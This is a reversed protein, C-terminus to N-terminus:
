WIYARLEPKLYLNHGSVVNYLEYWSDINMVVGNVREKALSHGSTDRMKQMYSVSTKASWLYAYGEFFKKKQKSLEDGYYGEQALKNMYADHSILVGGLDAVNENLTKEGDAYVGPLNEPDIELLSYNDALKQLRTNFEQKDADNAWWENLGGDKDYKSGANDFGHTMEHGIVAFMAYNVADSYEEDYLPPLMFAPYIAVTNCSPEYFANVTSLGCDDALMMIELLLNNAQKGCLYTSFNLSNASLRLYDEVLSNGTPHVMFEEFWQDPYGVNFRIADLKELAKQRTGESMWDAKNLRARFAERMEECHELMESKLSSTVYKQAFEYSQTYLMKKNVIETARKSASLKTNNQVNFSDIREQSAYVLENAISTAAAALIDSADLAELKEIDKTLDSSIYIDEQAVGLEDAVIDLYSYGTSRVSRVPVFKKRLESNDRLEELTYEKDNFPTGLRLRLAKTRQVTRAAEDSSFGLLRLSNEAYNDSTTYGSQVNFGENMGLTLMAKGNMSCVSPKLITTYGLKMLQATVKWAEERTTAGDILAKHASVYAIAADTTEDIQQVDKQVTAYDASTNRLDAVREDMADYASYVMMGKYTEGALETNKYWDGLCYMYFNDGPLCTTDKYVDLTWPKTDVTSPTTNDGDIEDDSCAAFGALLVSFLLFKKM